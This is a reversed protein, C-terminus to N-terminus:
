NRRVLLSQFVQLPMTIVYAVIQSSVEKGLDKFIQIDRLTSRVNQRSSNKDDM